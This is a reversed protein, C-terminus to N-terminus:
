RQVSVEYHERVPPAALVAGLKALQEQFYGSAEGATMDAETEWLGISLAKGTTPDTLLLAGKFGKLQSGAPVISDRYIDIATNMKGPQIQVSVARAKM